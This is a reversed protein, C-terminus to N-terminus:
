PANVPPPLESEQQFIPNVIQLIVQGLDQHNTAKLFAERTSDPLTWSTYLAAFASRAIRRATDLPLYYPRGELEYPGHDSFILIAYPRSNQERGRQIDSVIQLLVKETYAFSARLTVLNDERARLYHGDADFVYPWHSTLLHYYYFIPRSQKSTPIDRALMISHWAYSSWRSTYPFSMDFINYYGHFHFCPMSQLAYYMPLHGTLHYGKEKLIKPLSTYAIIDYAKKQNIYSELDPPSPSLRDPSSFYYLAHLTANYPLSLSSLLFGKQLFSDPYSFSLQLYRALTDPEGFADFVLCYIDPYRYASDQLVAEPCVMPSPKRLYFHDRVQRAALRGHLLLILALVALHIFQAIRQSVRILRLFPLALLPIALAEPHVTWVQHLTHLLPLQTTSRILVLNIVFFLVSGLTAREKSGTLLYALGYIILNILIYIPLRSLFVLYPQYLYISYYLYITPWLLFAAVPFDAIFAKARQYVSM